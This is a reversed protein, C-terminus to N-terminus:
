KKKEEFIKVLPDEPNMEAYSRTERLDPKGEFLSKFKDWFTSRKEPPLKKLETIPDIRTVKELEIHTLPAPKSYTFAEITRQRKEESFGKKDSAGLNNKSGRRMGEYINFEHVSIKRADLPDDLPHALAHTIFDKNIAKDLDLSRNRYEMLESDTMDLVKQTSAAQITTGQKKEKPRAKLGEVLTETYAFSENSRGAKPVIKWHDM